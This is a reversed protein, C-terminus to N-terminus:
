NDFSLGYQGKPDNLFVYAGNTSPGWDAVVAVAHEGKVFGDRGSLIRGAQARDRELHITEVTTTMVRAGSSLAQQVANQVHEDFKEFGPIKEKLKALDVTKKGPMSVDDLTFSEGMVGGHPQPIQLM